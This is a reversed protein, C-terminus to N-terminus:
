EKFGNNILFPHCVPDNPKRSVPNPNYCCVTDLISSRKNEPDNKLGRNHYFRCNECIEQKKM